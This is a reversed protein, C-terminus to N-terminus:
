EPFFSQEVRTARFYGKYIETVGTQYGPISPIIDWGAANAPTITDCHSVATTFGKTYIIYVEVAFREHGERVIMKKFEHDPFSAYTLLNSSVSFDEKGHENKSGSASNQGDNPLAAAATQASGLDANTKSFFYKVGGVTPYTLTFEQSILSNLCSLTVTCTKEGNSISGSRAPYISVLWADVLGQGIVRPVDYIVWHTSANVTGGGSFNKVTFQQSGYIATIVVAGNASM